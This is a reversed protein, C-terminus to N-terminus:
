NDKLNRLQVFSELQFEDPPRNPDINVVLFIRMLKTDELKAPLQTLENGNEDYYRFIPPVNRVYSTVISLQEQDAPYTAPEGVPEIVGKKLENGVGIIEEVWSLEFRAKMSHTAGLVTPCEKGVRNTAQALFTISNDSFSSTIDSTTAAQWVGACNNCGGGCLKGLTTIDAKVIVSENTSGLDGDTSIKVKANKLTGSLLGSFTVSCSGGSVTSTCDKIQSGSSITGLFYRVKEVKGDGDIDGYFVFRKDDAVEIAYAGNDATKAQRIEKTMTEVGRRAENIASSEDAVYDHTRYGLVIFNDVVIIALSFIFIAVLTEVLTFGSNNKKIKIIQWM